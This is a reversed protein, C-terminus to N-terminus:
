KELCIFRRRTAMGHSADERFTLEFPKGVEFVARGLAFRYEMIRHLNLVNWYGAFARCMVLM